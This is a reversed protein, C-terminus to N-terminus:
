VWIGGSLGCLVFLVFLLLLLDRSRLDHQQAHKRRAAHKIAFDSKFAAYYPTAVLCYEGPAAICWFLSDLAMNAGATMLICEPDVARGCVYHELFSSVAQRVHTMGNFDQYSQERVGLGPRHRLYPLLHSTNKNEAIACSIYGDPHSWWHYEPYRVPDSLRLFHNLNQLPTDDHALAHALRPSIVSSGDSDVSAASAASASIAGAATAPPARARLRRRLHRLYLAQVGVAATWVVTWTAITQLYHRRLQAQRHFASEVRLEQRWGNIGHAMEGRDGTLPHSYALQSHWTSDTPCSLAAGMSALFLFLCSLSLATLATSFPFPFLLFLPPLPPACAHM